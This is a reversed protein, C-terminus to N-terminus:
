VFFPCCLLFNLLVLPRLPGTFLSNGVIITSYSLFCAFNPTLGLILKIIFNNKQFIKFDDKENWSLFSM